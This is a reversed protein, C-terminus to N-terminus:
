LLSYCDLTSFKLPLLGEERLSTLIDSINIVLTSRSRDHSLPALALSPFRLNLLASLALGDRLHDASSADVGPLLARLRRLLTEELAM